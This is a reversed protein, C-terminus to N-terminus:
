DIWGLHRLGYQIGDHDCDRTVWDACAQVDATAHGMAIGTGVAALMEKDNQNDGFAVINEQEVGLQAALELVAGAKSSNLPLVDVGRDSFRKFSLHPFEPANQEQEPSLLAIAQVIPHTLAYGPAPPATTRCGKIVDALIPDPSKDAFIEDPSEAMFNTGLQRTYALLRHVDEEHLPIAKTLTNDAYIVSGNCLVYDQMGTADIVWKAMKYNRGTAIAVHTGQAKLAAIAALTSPLLEDRSDLLTGDIDFIALRKMM